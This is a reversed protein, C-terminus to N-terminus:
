DLNGTAYMAVALAALPATECRLIRRGLTATPIGHERAYAVETEEFGGEAGVLISLTSFSGALLEGLPETAREYFLIAREDEGMRAIAQPFDLLEGVQPVKGRMSQKAAELAVRQYRVRKKEMSRGDPRSVCRHTLVPIIEDVGLEVAKQVILEFKDGKPLAQYLRVRVSPENRSPTRGTIQLTVSTSDVTEIVGECDYGSMDCLTLSDGERLRLVKSIHRADDGTIVARDGQITDCFFRPM